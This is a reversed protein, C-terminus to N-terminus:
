DWCSVLVALDRGLAALDEPEMTAVQRAATETPIGADSLVRLIAAGDLSLTVNGPLIRDGRQPLVMGIVGGAMDIVPAGAEQPRTALDLQDLEPEGGLGSMRAVRGLAITAQDLADGYAFGAVVIEAGEAANGLRAIARPAIPDLPHLLALGAEEDRHVIRTDIGDGITVRGCASIPELATAVVGDRSVFFGSVAGIPRRVRLGALMDGSPALQTAPEPLVAGDLPRFSAQMEELARQANRDQERPWILAFGKITNGALYAEVHAARSDNAGDITFNRARLRREGQTPILSLSQMVDYLASLTTQSGPMSILLARMGSGNRPKYHVFPPEVRDFEVLGLPLTIEVGASAESVSQLNLAARDARWDSLLRERQATTLIGTPEYGHAIQWDRMAARTGPGFAGDIMGKYHAEWRLAEQVARREEPLLLAEAARAEAPTQDAPELTPSAPAAQPALATGVAGDRPWFRATYRRGETVYSDSPILGERKLAQMRRRAGEPTDPGLAIAYWGTTMAFGAVDPFDAAYDRARLEAQALTARAEVQIWTQQAMAAGASMVLVLVQITRALM